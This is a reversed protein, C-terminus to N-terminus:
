AARNRTADFRAARVGRESLLTAIHHRRDTFVIVNGEAEFAHECDACLWETRRPASPDVAEWLDEWPLILQGCSQCSKLTM